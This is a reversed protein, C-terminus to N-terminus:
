ASALQLRLIRTLDTQVPDHLSEASCSCAVAEDEDEDLQSDSEFAGNAASYM